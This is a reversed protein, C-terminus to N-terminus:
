YLLKALNVLVVISNIDIHLDKNSNKLINTLLLHNVYVGGCVNWNKFFLKTKLLNLLKISNMAFKKIDMGYESEYLLNM